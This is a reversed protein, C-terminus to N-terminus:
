TFGVWEIFVYIANFDLLTQLPVHVAQPVPISFLYFHM